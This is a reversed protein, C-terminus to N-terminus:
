WVWPVQMHLPNLASNFQLSASAIRGKFQTANAVPTITLYRGWRRAERILEVFRPSKGFDPFLNRLLRPCHWGVGMTPVGAVVNGNDDYITYDAPDHWGPLQKKMWAEAPVSNLFYRLYTRIQSPSVTSAFAVVVLQQVYYPTLFAVMDWSEDPLFDPKSLVFQDRTKGKTASQDCGDPPGSCSTAGSPAVVEQVYQAGNDTCPQCASVM